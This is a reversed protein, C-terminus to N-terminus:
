GFRTRVRARRGVLCFGYKGSIWLSECPWGGRQVAKLTQHKKKKKLSPCLASQGARTSDIFKYKGDNFPFSLNQKSLSLSVDHIGIGRQQRPCITRPEHSRCILCYSATSFRRVSQCPKSNGQLRSCLLPQLSEAHSQIGSPVWSANITNKSM